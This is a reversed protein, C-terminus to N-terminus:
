LFSYHLFREPRYLQVGPIAPVGYGAMLVLYVLSCEKTYQHCIALTVQLAM